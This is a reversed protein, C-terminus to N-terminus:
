KFRQQIKVWIKYSQEVTLHKKTQLKKAFLFSLFAYDLHAFRFLDEEKKDQFSKGQNKIGRFFQM